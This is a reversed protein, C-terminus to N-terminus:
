RKKQSQIIGRAAFWISSAVQAGKLATQWWSPKACAPPSQNRRFVSVGAVLLATTSAISGITKARSTVTRVTETMVQLEELMHVRNIESEAILLQRRLELPNVRPTKGPM